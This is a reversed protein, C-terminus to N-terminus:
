IEELEADIRARLKRVEEPDPFIIDGSQRYALDKATSKLWTICDSFLSINRLIRDKVKKEGAAVCM